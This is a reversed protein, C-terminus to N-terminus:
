ECQAPPKGASVCINYKEADSLESRRVFPFHLRNRSTRPPDGHWSHDTAASSRDITRTVTAHAVNVKSIFIAGCHLEHTGM